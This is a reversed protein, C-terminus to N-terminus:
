NSEKIEFINGTNDKIFILDYHEREERICEYNNKEAKSILLERDTTSFCIHNFNKNTNNKNIFIEIILKDKGMLFIETEKEINFIKKGLKASLLFKRLIKMDLINQYFNVIEKEDSISIGIHQLEM